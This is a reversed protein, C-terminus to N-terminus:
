ILGRAALEICALQALEHLRVCGAGQPSPPRHAAHQPSRRPERVIAPAHDGSGARLLDSRRSGAEPGARRRM